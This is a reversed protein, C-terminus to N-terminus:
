LEPLVGDGDAKEDYLEHAPRTEGATRASAISENFQEMRERWQAIETETMPVPRYQPPVYGAKNFLLNKLRLSYTMIEALNKKFSNLILMTVLFCCVTGGICITTFWDHDYIVITVLMVIWSLLTM